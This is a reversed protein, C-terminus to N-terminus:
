KQLLQNFRAGLTEKITGRLTQLHLVLAGALQDISPMEDLSKQKRLISYGMKSTTTPSIMGSDSKQELGVIDYLVYGFFSCASDIDAACKLQQIQGNSVVFDVALCPRLLPIGGDLLACTCVNVLNTILGYQSLSGDDVMVNVHLRLVQRPFQRLDVSQEMISMLQKTIQKMRLRCLEDSREKHHQIAVEIQGSAYNASVSSSSMEVPKDVICLVRFVTDQHTQIAGDATRKNGLQRLKQGTIICSGGNNKIKGYEFQLQIEEM